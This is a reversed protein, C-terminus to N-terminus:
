KAQYSGDLKVVQWSFHPPPSELMYYFSSCILLTTFTSSMICCAHKMFLLLFVTKVPFSVQKLDIILSASLDPFTSHSPVPRLGMRGKNAELSHSKDCGCLWFPAIHSIHGSHYISCIFSWLWCWTSLLASRHEWCEGFSDAGESTFWLHMSEITSMLVLLSKTLPFTRGFNPCLKSVRM